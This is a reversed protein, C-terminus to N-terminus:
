DLSQIVELLDLRGLVADPRDCQQRTLAHDLGAGAGAEHMQGPPLVDTHVDLHRAM